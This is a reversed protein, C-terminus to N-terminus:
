DDYLSEVLEKSSPMEVCTGEIAPPVKSTGRSLSERTQAITWQLSRRGMPLLGFLKRVRTIEASVLAVNAGKEAREWFDTELVLLQRIAGADAELFEEIMPSRYIEQWSELASPHWEAMQRESVLAGNEGPVEVVVYRQPPEPIEVEYNRVVLETATAAKSRNARV